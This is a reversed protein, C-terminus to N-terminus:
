FLTRVSFDVVFFFYLSTGTSVAALSSLFSTVGARRRWEEEQVKSRSSSGQPGPLRRLETGSSRWGIGGFGAGQAV